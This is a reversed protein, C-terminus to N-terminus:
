QFSYRIGFQVQWRSQLNFRDTFTNSQSTDFSFTPQQTNPDVSIGVPQTNVPAQRVGWDSNLLNGANLVDISFSLRNNGLNLDQVVRVDWRSSWPSLIAYKEAYQGRRSSLYDDQEIFANFAQRQEAPTSSGSTSFTYQQLESETPIYILDNLGSGDNNADGSYTYTFRGGQSYEMFISITTAWTGDGYNFTKNATGVIRHKNGYISPALEPNNVNGRVPNRAFADSSIEAEISSVDRADLYNYALSANLGNALSKKLELTWNFSRGKNTNDFVYANVNGGFPGTAYDSNLYFDRGDPGQLQGSPPQLGFNRVITANIDKTFIIDTSVLWGDGFKKEAGINTRWVQPFQFDPATTQYFFFDPNAVQNGIWVFPFRGTFFGSGGRLQLTQDGYVDWNFGVRPSLLPKQSPLELSSLQTPNGNEDYYTVDPAYTGGESVTGGKREINERIKTKTDFYLPIDMRLGYTLTFEESISWRDQAYFAFQGLNTEALAWSDNANNTQFTNQAADVIPDLNGANVYNIFDQVSAFGPGFTGGPSGGDYAGLNFSNDFLFAEFSAGVTLNHDNLFIDFNNTAQYM